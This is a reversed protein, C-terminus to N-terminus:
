ITKSMWGRKHNNKEELTGVTRGTESSGSVCTKVAFAIGGEESFLLWTMHRESIEAAGANPLFKKWPTVSSITQQPESVGEYSDLIFIFKDLIV